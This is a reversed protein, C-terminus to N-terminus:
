LLAEGMDEFIHRHQRRRLGSHGLLMVELLWFVHKDDEDANGGLISERLSKAVEVVRETPTGELCGSFLEHIRPELSVGWDNDDRPRCWEPLKIRVNKRPLKNKM